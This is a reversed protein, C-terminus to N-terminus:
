YHPPPAEEHPNKIADQKMTKLYDTLLTLKHELRQIDQHQQTITKELAELTEEQFTQNIELTDIKQILDEYPQQVTNIISNKM